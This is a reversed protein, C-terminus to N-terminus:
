MGVTLEFLWFHWSIVKLRKVRSYIVYLSCVCILITCHSSWVLYLDPKKQSTLFFSLPFFELLNELFILINRWFSEFGGVREQCLQTSIKKTMYITFFFWDKREMLLGKHWFFLITAICFLSYKLTFKRDLSMFNLSFSSFSPYFELNWSFLGGQNYFSFTKQSFAWFNRCFVWPIKALVLSDALDSNFISIRFITWGFFFGTYTITRM